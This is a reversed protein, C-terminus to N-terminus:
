FCSYMADHVFAVSEKSPRHMICDRRFADSGILLMVTYRINTQLNRMTGKSRKERATEMRSERRSRRKKELRKKRTKPLTKKRTRSLSKRNEPGERTAKIRRRQMRRREKSKKVRRTSARCHISCQKLEQLM